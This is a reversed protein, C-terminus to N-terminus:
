KDSEGLDLVRVNRFKLGEGHGCFSIHGKHNFLGPHNKHDVTYPNKKGGDPAVNHGKCAKRVNGDLIVEGNVTVTVRDGKVRIEETSWEGLPKHVIRKAPIVGYVSGHVQYDHLKAYRPADHDLIQVECMAHYAADKGIPARVGVGNNVGERLFCFEFRLVFNRYEKKTYINKDNGYGASVYISGNVPIYGDLNGQWKDMSSGDFLIEFGQAREEETLEYLPSPEAKALISKIEDVSYSDDAKSTNTFIEAAKELYTKFDAYNIEETCKAAINKVAQAANYAVDKDYLYKGALLFAKMTPLEALAALVTNKTKRKSTLALVNAYDERLKDVDTEYRQVLTVYRPLLTEAVDPQHQAYWLLIIAARPTDITLLGKFAAESGNDYAKNLVTLAEDTNTMAIVPYFREPDASKDLAAKVIEYQREQPLGKISAYLATQIEPIDSKASELLDIVDQIDDGDATGALYKAAASNGSKAEAIIVKATETMHKASAFEMLANKNDASALAALVDAEIDGHFSKLAKLAAASIEADDNSLLAILSKGTKEGGLMGAAAIADLNLAKNSGVGALEGEVIGAASQVGNTGFWYLLDCKADNSLKSYQKVAVPALAEAGALETAAYIVANRYEIDNDKLAGAFIRAVKSPDAEMITKAAASREASNGKKFLGKAQKLTMEPSIAVPENPTLLRILSELFAKNYADACAASADQLGKKVDARKASYAPTSVYNVVGSLAYEYINNKVGEGAPKMMAAVEVISAPASAALDSMQSNFDEVTRTPMAALVDAVITETTRQRADQANLCLASALLLAIVSLKKIKM